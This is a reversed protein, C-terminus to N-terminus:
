KKGGLAEKIGFGIAGVIAIALGVYWPAGAPVSTAGIAILSASAISLAAQQKDTLGEM